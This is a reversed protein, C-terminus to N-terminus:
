HKIDETKMESIVNLVKYGRIKATATPDIHCRLPKAPDTAPPTKFCKTFM